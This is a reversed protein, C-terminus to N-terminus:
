AGVKLFYKGYFFDQLNQGKKALRVRRKKRKERQKMGIQYQTKQGMDDGAKKIGGVSSEAYSM